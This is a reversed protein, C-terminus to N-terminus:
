FKNKTNIKKILVILILLTILAIYIKFMNKDKGTPPIISAKNVSESYDLESLKITSTSSYNDNYNGAVAVTTQSNNTISPYQMRKKSSNLYSLIETEGTYLSDEDFDNGLLKSVQLNIDIRGNRLLEFGSNQLNLTIVIAKTKSNKISQKFGDSFLQPSVHNVNQYTIINQPKVTVSDTLDAFINNAGVGIASEKGINYDFGKPIYLLMQIKETDTYLSTNTLSITYRLTVASGYRIKQDISAVMYKPDAVSTIQSFIKTGNSATIAMGTISLSPTLNYMPLKKLYIEPGPLWDDIMVCKHHKYYLVTTGDNGYIEEDWESPNHFQEAYVHIPSVSNVTITDALQGSRILEKAYNKFNELSEQTIEMDIAQLNVTNSYNFGNEPLKDTESRHNVDTTATYKTNIIKIDNTVIEKFDKILKKSVSSINDVKEIYNNRHNNEFISSFMEKDSDDLNEQSIVSYIKIGNNELNLITEKTKKAILKLRRDNEMKLATDNDSAAYLAHSDDGDSTPLGDSLLFIYRNSKEQNNNAFSDYAKELAGSINTYYKTTFPITSNLAKTLTETNNTLGVYRYCEGTFVVLGIYINSSESLLENIINQAIIKEAQLKTMEKEIIRGNQNVKVKIKEEMSASCDLALIVQSVSKEGDKIITSTYKTTSHEYDQSNYKLKNQIKQADNVTTIRDIDNESVDPYTYTVKYDYTGAGWNSLLDASYTGNEVPVTFASSGDAKSITVTVNDYNLPIARTDEAGLSDKGITTDYVSDIVEQVNGTFGHVTHHKCEVSHDDNPSDPQSPTPDPSPSVSGGGGSSSPPSPFEAGNYSIGYVISINQLGLFSIIMLIILIKCLNKCIKNKM